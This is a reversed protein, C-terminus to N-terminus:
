GESSEGESTGEGQGSGSPQDAGQGSAGEGTSPAPPPSPPVYGRKEDGGNAQTNESSSMAAEQFEQISKVGFGVMAALGVVFVLAGVTTLVLTLWRALKAWSPGKTSDDVQVFLMQPKRIQEDTEEIARRLAVRSSAMSAVILLVSLVLAAWGFYLWCTAAAALTLKDILAVSLAIAGTALAIITRDFQTSVEYSTAVLWERHRFLRAHQDAIYAKETEVVAPDAGWLKKALDKAGPDSELRKRFGPNEQLFEEFSLRAM